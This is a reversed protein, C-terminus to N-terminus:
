PSRRYPGAAHGPRGAPRAPLDGLARRQERCHAFVAPYAGGRDFGLMIPTGPPVTKKLEALAKPLTVSLGSPEGTVFCM